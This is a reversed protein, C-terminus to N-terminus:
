ADSIQVIPFVSQSRFPSLSLQIVDDNRCGDKPLPTTSLDLDTIGTEYVKEQLIEWVSYDAPNLDPSNLTRLQLPIFEAIEKELLVHAIFMRFKVLYHLQLSM